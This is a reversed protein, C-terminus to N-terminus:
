ASIYSVGKLNGWPVLTVRKIRDDRSSVLIGNKDWQLSVQSKSAQTLSGALGPLETPFKFQVFLIEPGAAEQACIEYINGADSPQRAPTKKSAAM